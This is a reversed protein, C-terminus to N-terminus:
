MKKKLWELEITLQGIKSYLTDREKELEETYKDKKLPNEFGSKISELAKKKWKNAQTSHIKYESCIESITKDERLLEKVVRTKFGPDYSKRTVNKM